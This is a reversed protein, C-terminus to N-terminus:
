LNLGTNENLFGRMGEDREQLASEQKRTLARTMRARATRCIYDHRENLFSRMDEIETGCLSKRKKTFFM